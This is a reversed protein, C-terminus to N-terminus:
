TTHSYHNFLFFGNGIRATTAKDSRKSGAATHITMSPSMEMAGSVYYCPTARCHLNKNGGWSSDVEVVECYFFSFSLLISFSLSISPSVSLSIISLSLVIQPEM